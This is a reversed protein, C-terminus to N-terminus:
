GVISVYNTSIPYVDPASFSAPKMVHRECSELTPQTLVHQDDTPRLAELLLLLENARVHHALRESSGWVLCYVSAEM